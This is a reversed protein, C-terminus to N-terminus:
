LLDDNSVMIYNMWVLPVGLSERVKSYIMMMM